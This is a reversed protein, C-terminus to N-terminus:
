PYNSNADTGPILAGSSCTLTANTCAAFDIGNNFPQVVYVDGAGTGAGTAREDVTIRPQGGFLDAVAEGFVLAPPTVEWCSAAQTQLHTGNPCLSTNL